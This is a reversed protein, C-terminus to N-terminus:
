EISSLPNAPDDLGLSATLVAHDNALDSAADEDDGKLQLRTREAKTFARVAKAVFRQAKTVSAGESWAVDSLEIEGTNLAIVLQGIHAYDNEDWDEIIIHDHYVTALADCIFRVSKNQHTSKREPAISTTVSALQDVRTCKGPVNLTALATKYDALKMTRSPAMVYHAGGTLVAKLRSDIPTAKKLVWTTRPIFNPQM